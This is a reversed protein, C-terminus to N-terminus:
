TGERRGSVEVPRSHARLAAILWQLAPVAPPATERGNLTAILEWYREVRADAVTELWALLEPGQQPGDVIRDLIRLGEASEPAVQDALAPRVHELAAARLDRGPAPQPGALAIERLRRGFAADTTLGALEVWADVRGPEDPLERMWEAVIGADGDLDLGAFTGEVFEDVIQQRQAASLRALEHMMLTEETTGGQEAIVSLVARRMRLARIEADVARLHVRAVEAVTVQRSLVDQVAALGIGLDRLTRVLELRAAAAEDYLRYGGATRGTPPLIGSDSWFRITRVPLGTRRALEGITYLEVHDSM